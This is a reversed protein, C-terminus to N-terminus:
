TVNVIPMYIIPNIKTSIIGYLKVLPFLDSKTPM